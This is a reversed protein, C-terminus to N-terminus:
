SDDVFPVFVVFCSLEVPLPPRPPPSTSPSPSIMIVVPNLCYERFILLQVTGIVHFIKLPSIRQIWDVISKYNRGCRRNMNVQSLSDSAYNLFFFFLSGVETSTRVDDQRTQNFCHRENRIKQTHQHATLWQTKSRDTQRDTQRDAQRDTSTDKHTQSQTHSQTHTHTHTHM